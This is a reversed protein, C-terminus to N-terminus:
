AQGCVSAEIERLKELVASLSEVDPYYLYGDDGENGWFMHRVGDFLATCEFVRNVIVNQCKWIDDNDADCNVFEVALARFGLVGANVYLRLPWVDLMLDCNALAKDGIKLSSFVYGGSEEDRTKCVSETKVKM